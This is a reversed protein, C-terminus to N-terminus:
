VKVSKTFISLHVTEFETIERVSINTLPVVRKSEVKREKLAVVDNEWTIHRFAFLFMILITIISGQTVAKGEAM